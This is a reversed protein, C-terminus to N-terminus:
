MLVNLSQIKLYLRSDRPGLYCAAIFLLLITRNLLDHLCCNSMWKVIREFLEKIEM